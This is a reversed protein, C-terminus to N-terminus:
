TRGGTPVPQKVAAPKSAPAGSAPATKMLWLLLPAAIFVTSYTGSIVGIMMCFAFAHIGEGGWIYLILVVILTLGGTLITRSLTVNVADNILQASIFPSKGRMERIRDFIVITDNISYGILTLLGAIVTLSIKFEQIGLFGFASALYYSAGISAIMVLTDHVLAAIGAIGWSLRQFRFWVYATIGLLSVMIAALAKLQMDLTVQGSVSSTNQWVPSGSMTAQLDDLLKKANEQGVHIEATWTEYPTNDGPVWNPNSVQVFPEHGLTKNASQRIHEILAYASIRNDPFRIEATTQEVSAAPSTPEAAAPPTAAPPTAPPTTSPKTDTESAKEEVGKKDTSKDAASKDDEQANKAKAKEDDSAAPESKSKTEAGETKAASEEQGCDSGESAKESAPEKAADDSKGSNADPSKLEPPAETKPASDDSEAAPAVGAGGEVPGSSVIQYEMQYTRLRNEGTRPDKLAEEVHRELDGVKELSSDIKYVTDPEEGEIAIEYVQFDISAGTKEDKLGELQKRMAARVEVDSMKEKLMPTVSTGGKLDIDFIGAGRSVAAVLGLLILVGSAITAAPFLKVWDIQPKTLLQIMSFSKLVRTREGADFIVRACFIATFMSIANGLMLTIGFGRLQDTGIVYLVMATLFTTLNGDIIASLAKDFGNRIQMRLAAGRNMEERIREFILVNADISMGVTLVLGALGPLTFPAQIVIMVAVTLLLNLVLASAAVAGAFRYYLIVFVLVVLLSIAVSWSGKVITDWGLIADILNEAIPTPFMVVPMSGSKLLESMFRVEQEDFDGTIRGRDTIQSQIVPASILENDFVIALSREPPALNQGTLAGMKGVGQPKMTFEIEWGSEATLSPQAFALDEGKVDVHESDPTRLLVEVERIGRSALVRTLANEDKPISRLGGAVESQEASTLNIIDGTQRNRILDSYAQPYRYASDPKDGDVRALKTWLGVLNGDRDRVERSMKRQPDREQERAADIIHGDKTEDNAVIMFQLTGTSTVRRKIDDIQVQDVESVVIEIQKPGSKRIVLDKVGSPNIRQRLVDVVGNLDYTGRAAPNLLATEEENVEYVLNVGGRLDAGLKFTGFVIIAISVSWAALILSFKWGYDKLRLWKALLYGLAISLVIAALPLYVAPHFGLLRLSDKFKPDLIQDVAALPLLSCVSLM